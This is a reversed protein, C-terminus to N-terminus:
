GTVPKALIVKDGPQIVMGPNMSKYDIDTIIRTGEIANIKLYGIFTSGRKVMLKSSENVPMNSPVKVIAFGWDHNVATVRGEASNGKIREARKTIRKGLDDLQSRNDAVRKKAAETYAQLEELKKNAENRDNELKKVLGPIQDLQIDTGLEEFAKKISKILDQIEQLREDQKAVKEKWTAARRKALTINDQKLKLDEEAVALQEKAVDREKEMKDGAKRTKKISARRNTNTEDMKTRMEWLKSFKNMSEYSFWGGAGIAAIAIIYLIAKM